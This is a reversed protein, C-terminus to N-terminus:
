MKKSGGRSNFFHLYTLYAGIRSRPGPPIPESSKGEYARLANTRFANTIENDCPSTGFWRGEAKGDMESYSVLFASLFLALGTM